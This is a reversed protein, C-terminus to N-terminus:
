PGETLLDGLRFGAIRFVQRLSEAFETEFDHNLRTGCSDLITALTAGRVALIFPFGFKEEYRRNLGGLEQRVHETADMLGAGAQEGRSYGSLEKRTGLAPHMRLLELQRERGADRVVSQLASELAARNSFPRRKWAGEAVWPSREYVGGFRAIFAARDLQNLAQISLPEAIM